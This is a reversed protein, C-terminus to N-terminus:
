LIIKCNVLSSAFEGFAADNRGHIVIAVRQTVDILTVGNIATQTNDLYTYRISKTGEDRYIFTLDTFIYIGNEYFLFM